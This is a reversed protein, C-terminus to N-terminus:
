RDRTQRPPTVNALRGTRCLRRMVWWRYWLGILQRIGPIVILWGLPALWLTRRMLLSYASMERHISGSADKVHLEKLAAIPDIGDSQVAPMNDTIDLWQIANGRSGALAEFWRRDRVCGPCKADYYVTLIKDEHM